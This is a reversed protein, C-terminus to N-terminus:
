ALEFYRETEWNTVAKRFLNVENQRTAGFHEVFEDGFVKRAMSEKAMFRETAAELSSPLRPVQDPKSSYSSLPADLLELQQEMGRLGLGFIAAFALMPHMQYFSPLTEAQNSGGRRSADASM